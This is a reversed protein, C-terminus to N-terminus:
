ETGRDPLVRDGLRGFHMSNSRQSLNETPLSSTMFGIPPLFLVRHSSSM